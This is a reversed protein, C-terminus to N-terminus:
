GAQQSVTGHKNNRTYTKLVQARLNRFAIRPPPLVGLGSVIVVGVVDCEPEDEALVLSVGPVDEAGRDALCLCLKVEPGPRHHLGGEHQHSLSRSLVLGLFDLGL